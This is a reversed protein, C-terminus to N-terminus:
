NLKTEIFAKMNNVTSFTNLNLDENEIEINFEKELFMVLQMAFLSNVLGLEFINDDNVFDIEQGIKSQIFNKIINNIEM